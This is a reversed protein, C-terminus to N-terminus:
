TDTNTGKSLSAQTFSDPDYEYGDGDLVRVLADPSLAAIFYRDAGNDFAAVTVAQGNSLTLTKM